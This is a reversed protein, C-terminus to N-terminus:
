MTAAPVHPASRERGALQARANAAARSAMTARAMRAAPRVNRALLVRNVFRCFESSNFCTPSSKKRLLRQQLDYVARWDLWNRLQVTRKRQHGPQVHRASRLKPMRHLIRGASAFPVNLSRFQAFVCRASMTAAPVHTACRERGALRALASDM